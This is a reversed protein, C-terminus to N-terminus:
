SLMRSFPTIYRLLRYLWPKQTKKNSKPKTKSQKKPKQLFAQSYWQAPRILEQALFGFYNGNENISGVIYVKGASITFDHVNIEGRVKFKGSSDSKLDMFQFYKDYSVDKYVVILSDNCRVRDYLGTEGIYIKNIFLSKSMFNFIVLSDNCPFCALNRYFSLYEDRSLFCLEYIRHNFKQADFVVLDSNSLIKFEKCDTDAYILKPYPAINPLDFNFIKKVNGSLDYCVFAKSAFPFNKFLQDDNYVYFAVVFGNVTPLVDLIESQFYKFTVINFGTDLLYWFKLRNKWGTLVWKGDILPYLKIRSLNGNKAIPLEKFVYFDPNKLSEVYILVSNENKSLGVAYVSTDHVLVQSWSEVDSFTEPQIKDGNFCQPFLGLVTLLLLVFIERQRKM